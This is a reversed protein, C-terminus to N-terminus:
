TIQQRIKFAGSHDIYGCKGNTGVSALGESFSDAFDYNRAIVEKGSLDIFGAKGRKRDSAGTKVQTASRDDAAISVMAKNEQFNGASSYVPSIKVDGDMEIFGNKNNYEVTALGEHFESIRSYKPPVIVNGAKDILGFKGSAVIKKNDDYIVGTSTIARDDIFDSLDDYSPPIIEKGTVDIVGWKGQVFNIVKEGQFEERRGVNILAVGDSFPKVFDYKADIVLRRNADCFGFKDGKRFPILKSESTSTVAQIGFTIFIYYGGGILALLVLTIAAARKALRFRGLQKQSVENTAPLVEAIRRTLVGENFTADIFDKSGSFPNDLPLTIDTQENAITRELDRDATRTLFIALATRMEKATQYRAAPNKELAKFVIQNLESPIHEPLRKPIERVVAGLLDTLSDYPFPRAGSLLEYLMVGASWIDTQASRKRDFAEPAMYAPTGSMDASASTTKMVRSVGFDTLRPTNGQLLVNAPKLDRHIIQKSHLFELGNLIGIALEVVEKIPLSREKKLFDDLSGQPAYESVIVIQGDYEDAEIIPMVNPHGSAQEWLVAENRITEIQVQEELPLKIAVKTTVFKARREALWVEGFGGRGIRKILSYPGIEQGTQFM